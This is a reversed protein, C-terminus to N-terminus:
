QTASSDPGALAQLLRGVHPATELALLQDIAGARDTVGSANVCRTVKDRAQADSLERRPDGLAILSEETRAGREGALTLRVGGEPLSDDRTVRVREALNTISVDERHADDFLEVWCSGTVLTGAAVYRASQMARLESEWGATAGMRFGDPPLEVHVDDLQEGAVRMHLVLDILSQLSSAAPYARMSIDLLHWEEGLGEVLLEPRPADSFARLLGGDPASLVRPSGGLGRSAFNAAIVASQAGRLQHFKVAMTGMAAFTGGAQSGALGFCGALAAGRLGALLGASLSAGLAGAVGPSHWGRERFVPYNFARCLRTTAELGVAVATLFQEASAGELEALALAAPVVEPTVHCLGPRYVDCMTYATMQFANVGAAAVMSTAAGGIVRSTGPGYLANQAAELAAVDAAARGSLSTALADVSLRVVATRVREDLDRWRLGEAFEYLPVEVESAM